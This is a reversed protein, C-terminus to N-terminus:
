MWVRKKSIITKFIRMAKETHQTPTFRRSVYERAREGMRIAEEENEIIDMICQAMGKADEVEFLRGTVGDLIMDLIGGVPTAVIPKSLAMAELISRPHGESHSPLAVVTAKEMVRAIDNRGNLWEVRSEVGYERATEMVVDLYGRNEDANKYDGALWLVADCGREVLEKMARVATHQGKARHITAPVVIRVKRQLQPLDKEIRLLSRERIKAVDVPNHLLFLKDREVGSLMLANRTAFSVAIVGSCRRKILEKGWWPMMDPSYWGRMHVVLPVNRHRWLTGVVLASKFNNSSIIDPGIDEIVADAAKQLHILDPSSKIIRYYRHLKNNKKGIYQIEARPMLVHYAVGAENVAEAFKKCGGYPDVIHVENEAKLRSAFEVVSRPAGGFSNIFEFFIIKM